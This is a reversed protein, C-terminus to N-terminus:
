IFSLSVDDGFTEVRTGVKSLWPARENPKVGGSFFVMCNPDDDWNQPQFFVLKFGDPFEGQSQCVKQSYYATIHWLVLRLM